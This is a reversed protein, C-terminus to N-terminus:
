KNAGEQKETNLSVPTFSEIVVERRRLFIILGLIIALVPMLLINTFRIANSYSSGPELKDNKISRDVLTRSRISILNEDLSLWDATNLLWAVNGPAAHEATLFRSDGVVVLHRKVNEKEIVRNADEPSPAANGAGSKPPIPKDAFYSKFNGTLYLVLNQRKLISQKQSFLTNWEQQPYINYAPGVDVWSKPSSQILVTGKVAGTGKASDVNDVLLSVPSIWPFIMQGLGSVSPNKKNFGDPNIRVIFPYPVAVNMQFPGVQQPIQVQGCSADLVLSKDIRAGYHELLDLIKPSQVVASVGREIEIKIPDALVILNGGKMFYQDIEFLTRDSFSGNDGGAVILTKISSDIVTPNKAEVVSVDYNQRLQEFMPKFKAEFQDEPMQGRMQARVMPDIYPTTDTKMIAIKPTATRSVKMICQDLDYEFNETNQILPLVEKKDAYLVAIGMFVNIFEVKDKAFSQAQVENIGLAAAKRKADESKGPDEWQIKLNKGAYAQYESLLDKIDAEVPKMHPPLAKSFYVKITIIDDLNRLLKKSADSLSYMKSETLDIRAFKKSVVYNFVLVFGLILLVFVLSQTRYTIKNSTM